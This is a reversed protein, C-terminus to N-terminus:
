KEERRKAEEAEQRRHELYHADLAFVIQIFDDLVEPELQHFQGYAVIADWPIPGIGM